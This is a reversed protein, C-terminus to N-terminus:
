EMELLKKVLIHGPPGALAPVLNGDAGTATVALARAISAVTLNPVDNEMVSPEPYSADWVSYILTARAIILRWFLRRTNNAIRQGGICAAAVTDLSKASSDMMLNVIYVLTEPAPTGSKSGYRQDLLAHFHKINTYDAPVNQKSEMERLRTTVIGLLKEASATRWEDTSLFRRIDKFDGSGDSQVRKCIANFLEMRRTYDTLRLEVLKLTLLSGPCSTLELVLEIVFRIKSVLDGKGRTKAYLQLLKEATATCDSVWGMGLWTLILRLRVADPNISDSDPDPGCLKLGREILTEYGGAKMTGHEVEARRLAKEGNEFRKFQKLVSPYKLVLDLLEARAMFTNTKVSDSTIVSDMDRCKRFFEVGSSLTYNMLIQASNHLSFFFAVLGLLTFFWMSISGSSAHCMIHVQVAFFLGNAILLFRQMARMGREGKRGCWLYSQQVHDAGFCVRRWRGRNGRRDGPMVNLDKKVGILPTSGKAAASTISGEGIEALESNDIRDVLDDKRFHQWLKDTVIMTTNRSLACSFIVVTWSALQSIVLQTPLPFTGTFCAFGILFFLIIWQFFTVKFIHKTQEGLQLSLYRSFDFAARRELGRVGMHGLSNRLFNSRLQM